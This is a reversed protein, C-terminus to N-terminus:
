KVVKPRPYAIPDRVPRLDIVEGAILTVSMGELSEKLVGALDAHQMDEPAVLIVDGKKTIIVNM